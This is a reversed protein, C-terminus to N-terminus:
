ESSYVSIPTVSVTKTCLETFGKKKATFSNNTLVGLMVVNAEDKLNV